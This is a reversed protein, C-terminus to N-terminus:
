VFKDKVVHQIYCHNRFSQYGSHQKKCVVCTYVIEGTNHTGYHSDFDKKNGFTSYCIYCLIGGLKDVATQKQVNIECNELPVEMVVNKGTTLDKNLTIYSAISSAM